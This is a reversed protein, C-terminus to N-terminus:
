GLGRQPARLAAEIRQGVDAVRVPKVLYGNIGASAAQQIFAQDGRGTVMIVPTAQISEDARIARVTELGNMRPMEADLLVVDIPRGRILRLAAEGDPATFVHGVGLARLSSCMLQRMSEQDDVILVRLDSPLSM